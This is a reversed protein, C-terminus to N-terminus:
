LASGLVKDAPGLKWKLVQAPKIRPKGLSVREIDLDRTDLVLERAAPDLRRVQLRVVGTLRHQAFDVDLDLDAHEVRIAQPNAFSHPDRVAAPSDATAAGMAAGPAFNLSLAAAIFACPIRM